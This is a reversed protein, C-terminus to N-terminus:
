VTKTVRLQRQEGAYESQATVRLLPTVLLLVLLVGSKAAQLGQPAAM